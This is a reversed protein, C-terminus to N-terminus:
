SYLMRDPAHQSPRVLRFNITACRRKTICDRGCKALLASNSTAAVPGVSPPGHTGSSNMWRIEGSPPLKLDHSLRNRLNEADHEYQDADHAENRGCQEACMQTREVVDHMEDGARNREVEAKGARETARLHE